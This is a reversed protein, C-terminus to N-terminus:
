CIHVTSSVTYFQHNPAAWESFASPKVYSSTRYIYIVVPTLLPLFVEILRVWYILINTCQNFSDRPPIRDAGITICHLSVCLNPSVWECTSTFLGNLAQLFHTTHFRTKVLYLAFSLVVVRIGLVQVPLRQLLSRKRKKSPPLRGRAMERGQWATM